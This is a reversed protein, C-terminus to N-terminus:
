PLKIGHKGALFAAEDSRLGDIRAQVRGTSDRFQLDYGMGFGHEHANSFSPTVPQSFDYGANWMAAPYGKSPNKM